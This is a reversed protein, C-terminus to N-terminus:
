TAGSGKQAELWKERARRHGKAGSRILGGTRVEEVAEELVKLLQSIDDEPGAQEVDSMAAHVEGLEERLQRFEKDLEARLDEATDAM